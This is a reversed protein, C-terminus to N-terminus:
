PNWPSSILSLILMVTILALHFYVKDRTLRNEFYHRSLMYLGYFGSFSVVAMNLYHLPWFLLVWTMELIILGYIWPLVPHDHRFVLWFLIVAVAFMMLMIVFGPPSFFFNLSWILNFNLFATALVTVEELFSPLSNPFYIQYLYFWAGAITVIFLKVAMPSIGSLTGFLGVLFLGPVFVLFGYKRPLNAKKIAYLDVLVALALLPLVYWLLSGFSTYNGAGVYIILVALVTNAIKKAKLYM